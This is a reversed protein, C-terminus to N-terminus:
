CRFYLYCPFSYDSIATSFHQIPPNLPAVCVGCVSVNNSQHTQVAFFENLSIIKGYNFTFPSMAEVKQCETVVLQMARYSEPIVYLIWWRIYDRIETFSLM